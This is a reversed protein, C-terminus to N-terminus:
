GCRSSPVVPLSSLAVTTEGARPKRVVVCRSVGAAGPTVLCFLQGHDPKGEAVFKEGPNIDFSEADVCGAIRMWRKGDNRVTVALHGVACGTFSTLAGVSTLVIVVSRARKGVGEGYCRSM